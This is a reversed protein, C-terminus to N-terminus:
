AWYVYLNGSQDYDVDVGFNRVTMQTLVNVWPDITLTRTHDYDNPFVFSVKMGRIRYASQIDNSDTSSVPAHEVLDGTETHIIINGKQDKGINKIAGNYEMQILSVDAGPHVVLDYKMGGKEPLTYVADIGPYLDHYIIRKFGDTVISHLEKDTRGALFSYYGTNKDSAEIQPHSNAGLWKVSIYSSITPIDAQAEKVGHKAKEYDSKEKSISNIKEQNLKTIKYIPGQDTLFVCVGGYDAFYHIPLGHYDSILGPVNKLFHASEFIDKEAFTPKHRIRDAGLASLTMSFFLLFVYGIRMFYKEMGM